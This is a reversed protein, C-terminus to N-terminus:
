FAAWLKAADGSFFQSTAARQAQSSMTWFIDLLLEAVAEARHFDPNNEEIPQSDYFYPRLEPYEVFIRSIEHSQNNMSEALSEMLSRAVYETQRAFIGTQRNVWYLSVIVALSSITWVILSLLEYSSMSQM